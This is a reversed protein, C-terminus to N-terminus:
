DTNYDRSIIISGITTGNSAAQTILKHLTPPYVIYLSHLSAQDGNKAAEINTDKDNGNLMASVRHYIEDTIDIEGIEPLIQKWRNAFKLLADITDISKLQTRYKAHTTSNTITLYNDRTGFRRTRQRQAM